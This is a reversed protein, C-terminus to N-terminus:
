VTETTEPQRMNNSHTAKRNGEQQRGTAKRNGEQQRGTAERTTGTHKVVVTSAALECNWVM